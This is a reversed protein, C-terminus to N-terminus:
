RVVVPAWASSNGLSVFAFLGRQCSGWTGAQATYHMAAQAFGARNMLWVQGLADVGQGAVGVTVPGLRQVPWAPAGNGIPLVRSLGQSTLTCSEGDPGMTFLRPFSAPGAVAYREWTYSPASEYGGVRAAPRESKALPRATRDLNTPPAGKPDNAHIGRLGLGGRATQACGSLAPAAALIAVLATVPINRNRRVM